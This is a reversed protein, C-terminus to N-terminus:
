ISYTIVFSQPGYTANAITTNAGTNDRTSILINGATSLQMRWFVGTGGDGVTLEPGLVLFAPFFRSPINPTISIGSVGSATTFQIGEVNITVLRGIRTIKINGSITNFSGGGTNPGLATIATNFEEYYNLTSKTGGSTPLTLGVSFDAVRTTGSVCM